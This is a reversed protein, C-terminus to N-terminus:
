GDDTGHCSDSKEGALLCETYDYNRVFWDRVFGNFAYDLMLYLFNCAFAGAVIILLTILTRKLHRNKDKM